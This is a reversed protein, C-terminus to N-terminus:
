LWKKKFEETIEESEATGPGQVPVKKAPPPPKLFEKTPIWKAGTGRILRRIGQDDSVVVCIRPNKVERVHQIIWDDATEGSTYIVEIAGKQSKSGGGERNDFIVSMRNHGQLQSKMLLALFIERKTPWPGPPIDPLAYLLNYGDILYHLSV